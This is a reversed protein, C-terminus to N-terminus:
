CARIWLKCLHVYLTATSVLNSRNINNTSTTLMRGLIQLFISAAIRLVAGLHEDTIRTMIETDIKKMPSLIKECIHPLYLYQPCRGKFISWKVTNQSVVLFNSLRRPIFKTKLKTYNQFDILSRSFFIKHGKPMFSFPYALTAIASEIKRFDHFSHSLIRWANPSSHWQKRAV